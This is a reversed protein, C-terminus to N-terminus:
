RNKALWKKPSLKNKPDDHSSVPCKDNIQKKYQHSNDIM